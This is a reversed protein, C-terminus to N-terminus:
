VEVELIIKRSDVWIKLEDFTIGFVAKMQSVIMHCRHCLPIFDNLHKLIYWWDCSPHPKHNKEHFQLGNASRGEYGRCDKGCLACRYGLLDIIKQRMKKQGKQITINRKGPHNRNWAIIKDMNRRSYNNAIERRRKPNAKAWQM